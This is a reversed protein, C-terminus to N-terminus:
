AEKGAADEAAPKFQATRQERRYKMMMSFAVVAIIIVGIIINQFYVSVHLLNLVNRVSAIILAGIMTTWVKGEGGAMNIGGIVCAAIADTQYNDGQAPYASNLQAALLVGAAAACFGSFMFVFLKITDTRIGANVLVMENGGLGYIHTGIPLKTTIVVGLIVFVAMLYISVPIELLKGNGIFKFSDPFSGFSNGNNFLYAAGQTIQGIVLTAVFPPVNLYAVLLGSVLGLLVGTILAAVIAVWVPMGNLFLIGILMGCFSIIGGVSLDIGKIVIVQSIGVAAIAIPAAQRVVNLLNGPTLFNHVLSGGAIFLAIGVVAIIFPRRNKKVFEVQRLDGELFYGPLLREWGPM